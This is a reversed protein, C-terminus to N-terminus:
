FGVSFTLFVGGFTKIPQGQISELGNGGFPIYYYRVALAADSKQSPGVILGAGIFSGFRLYGRAYGWSQFFEYEYPTSVVFTPGIGGCLFPRLSESLEDRFLRYRVGFTLPFIFLRNIKGPVLLRGTVPDYLSEIESSNRAGSIGLELLGTWLDDFPLQYFFGAGFGSQSFLIELGAGARGSARTTPGVLPRPSQFVFVTDVPVTERPETPSIASSGPVPQQAWVVGAVLLLALM